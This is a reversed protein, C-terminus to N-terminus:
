WKLIYLKTNGCYMNNIYLTKSNRYYVAYIKKNHIENSLIIRMM